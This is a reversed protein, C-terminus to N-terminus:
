TEQQRLATRYETPSRGHVKKFVRNFQSLSQFGVAFAIESIRMNGDALLNCAQEIRVNGVYDVFNVGTVQRFKESLHGASINAVKAVSTLSIPDTFNQCIFNRARWIDIPEAHVRNPETETKLGNTPTIM